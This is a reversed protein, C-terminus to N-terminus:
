AIVLYRDLDAVLDSARHDLFRKDVIRNVLEFADEVKRQRLIRRNGAETHPDAVLQDLGIYDLLLPSALNVLRDAALIAVGAQELPRAAVDEGGADPRDKGARFLADLDRVGLHQREAAVLVGVAVAELALHEPLM